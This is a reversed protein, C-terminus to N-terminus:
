KIIIVFTKSFFLIFWTRIESVILIVVPVIIYKTIAYMIIYQADVNITNVICLGDRDVLSTPNHKNKNAGIVNGNNM